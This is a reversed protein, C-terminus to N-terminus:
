LNKYLGKSYELVRKNLREKLIKVILLLLPKLCLFNVVQWAKYKIINIIIPPLVDKYIRSYDPWKFIFVKERNILV